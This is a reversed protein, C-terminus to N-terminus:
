KKRRKEKGKRRRKSDMGHVPGQQKETCASTSLAVHKSNALCTNSKHCVFVCSFLALRAKKAKKKKVGQSDYTARGIPAAQIRSKWEEHCWRAM